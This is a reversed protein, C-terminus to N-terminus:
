RAQARLKNTLLTLGHFAADALGVTRSFTTGHDGRGFQDALPDHPAIWCTTGNPATFPGLRTAAHRQDAVYATIALGVVMWGAPIALLWTM